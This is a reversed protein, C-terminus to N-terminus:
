WWCLIEGIDIIAGRGIVELCVRCSGSANGTADGDEMATDNGDKFRLGCDEANTVDTCFPVGGAEDIVVRDMVGSVRVAEKTWEGLFIM